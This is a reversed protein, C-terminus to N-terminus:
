VPALPRDRGSAPVTQAGAGVPSRTGREDLHLRTGDVLAVSDDWADAPQLFRYAYARGPGPTAEPNGGVGILARGGATAVRSGIHDEEQAHSPALRALFRWKQGDHRFIYAAGSSEGADAAGPAGIVLFGDRLSVSSGFFENQPPTRRQATHADASSITQALRWPRASDNPHAVREWVRVSGRRNRIEDGPAGVVITDGECTVASGAWDQPADTPSCLAMELSFGGNRRQFVFACGSNIGARDLYPAGVVLLNAGLAVSSGFRGGASSTGALIPANVKGLGAWVAGDREFLDVAGADLGGADARPSGIAAMSDSIAVAAGFNDGAEPHGRRLDAEIVFPPAENSDPGPSSRRLVFAAGADWGVAGDLPAGVILRDGDAAIAAGFFAHRDGRPHAIEGNLMWEGGHREYFHVPGDDLGIDTDRAGGVAAWDGGLAVAAGLSAKAGSPPMLTGELVADGPAACAIAAVVVAAAARGHAARNGSGIIAAM